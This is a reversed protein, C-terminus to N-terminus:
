LLCLFNLNAFKKALFIPLLVLSSIMICVLKRSSVRKIVFSWQKQDRLQATRLKMVVFHKLDQHLFQM